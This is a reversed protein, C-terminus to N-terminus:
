EGWKRFFAEMEDDSAFDGRDAAETGQRIREIQATESRLYSTLAENVLHAAERHTNRALQELQAKLEPEVPLTTTSTM